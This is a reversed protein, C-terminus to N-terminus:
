STCQTCACLRLPANHSHMCVNHSASHTVRGGGRDTLARAPLKHFSTSPAISRAPLKHLSTSPSPLRGGSPLRAQASSGHVTPGTSRGGQGWSAAEDVGQGRAGPAERTGAGRGRALRGESAGVRRDRGPGQGRAGPGESAPVTARSASSTTVPSYGTGQGSKKLRAEVAPSSTVPSNKATATAARAPSGKTSCGESQEGEAGMM